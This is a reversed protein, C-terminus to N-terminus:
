VYKHEDNGGKIALLAEREKRRKDLYPKSFYFIAASGLIFTSRYM